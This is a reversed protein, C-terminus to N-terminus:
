VLHRKTTLQRDVPYYAVNEPYEEALLALAAATMEFANGLGGCCSLFVRGAEMNARVHRCVPNNKAYNVLAGTLASVAACVLKGEGMGEAHGVALLRCKDGRRDAYIRIM